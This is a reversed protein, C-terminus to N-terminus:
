SNENKIEKIPEPTLELGSVDDSFISGFHGTTDVICTEWFHWVWQDPLETPTNSTFDVKNIQCWEIMETRNM